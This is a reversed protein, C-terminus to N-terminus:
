RIAAEEPEFLPGFWGPFRSWSRLDIRTEQGADAPSADSHTPKNEHEHTRGAREAASPQLQHPRERLGARYENLVAEWQADLPDSVSGEPPLADRDSTTTVPAPTGEELEGDALRLLTNGGIRLREVGRGIQDLIEKEPVELLQSLSALSQWVYPSQPPLRETSEAGDM